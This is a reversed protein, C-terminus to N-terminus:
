RISIPPIQLLLFLKVAVFPLPTIQPLKPLLRSLLNTLPSLLLLLYSYRMTPTIFMPLFILTTLQKMLFM